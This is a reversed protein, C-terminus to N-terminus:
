SSIRFIDSFTCEASIEVFDTGTENVTSNQPTVTHLTELEVEEWVLFLVCFTAPTGETRCTGM